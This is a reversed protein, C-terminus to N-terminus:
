PKWGKPLVIPLAEHMMRLVKMEHDVMRNHAERFDPSAYSEPPEGYLLRYTVRDRTEESIGEATMAEETATLMQRLMKVNLHYLPDRHYADRQTPATLYRENIRREIERSRDPNDVM